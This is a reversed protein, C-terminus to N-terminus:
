AEDSWRSRLANKVRRAASLLRERLTGNPLTAWYLIEADTSLSRKYRVPESEGGLFDYRSYGRRISDEISLTHAVLGPKLHSDDHYLLGSQYFHVHGRRILHYLVGITEDGASVRTLDACLADSSAGSVADHILEAHFERAEQLFGSETGESDWRRDHLELMESFWDLAQAPGSASRSTLAGFRDEYKRMSRRIQGRTNSSLTSLYSKGTARLRDLDVYPSESRIGRWRGAPWRDLTREFLDERVGELMVEDSPHSALIEALDEVVEARHEALTLVDNIECAFGRAGSANLRVTSVRFPGIRSPPRPILACAVPEGGATSWVFGFTDFPEGFREFWRGMWEESLFVSTEGTRDFLGSWTQELAAWTDPGPGVKRRVLTM